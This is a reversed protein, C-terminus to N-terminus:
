GSERGKKRGICWVRVAALVIGSAAFVAGYQRLLNALLTMDEAHTYLRLAMGGTLAMFAAVAPRIDRQAFMDAYCLAAAYVYFCIGLVASLLWGFVLLTDLKFFYGGTRFSMTLRYMPSHLQALDAYTYTMGLALQCLMTTVGAIGGAAVGANRAFKIGHVGRASILLALLAPLYLGTDCVSNQLMHWTGDGLFPALRHTEYNRMALLLTGYVALVPISVLLKATRGISEWGLVCIFLATLLIYLLLRWEEEGIFVFERLMLVFREALSAGAYLLLLLLLCGFVRGMFNGLGTQLFGLLGQAVYVRMAHAALLFVGLAFIASLPLSLYVSNGKAYLAHNDPTFVASMCAAIAAVAIAEQYGIKGIQPKM